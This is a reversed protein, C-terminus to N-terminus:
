TSRKTTIKTFNAEFSDYSEVEIGKTEQNHYPFLKYFLRFFSSSENFMSKLRIYRASFFFKLFTTLVWKSVEANNFSSRKVSAIFCDCFRFYSFRLWIFCYFCRSFWASFSPSVTPFQESVYCQPFCWSLWTLKLERFLVVFHIKAFYIWPLCRHLM